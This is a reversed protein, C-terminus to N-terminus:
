WHRQEYEVTEISMREEWKHEVNVPTEDVSSLFIPYLLKSVKQAKKLNKLIVM